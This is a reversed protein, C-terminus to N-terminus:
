IRNPSVREFDGFDYSGSVKAGRELRSLAQTMADVQDDHAANPFAACEEIFDYVWPAIQPHPLFVNGAEIQPSVAFARAEKSGEPNVPILGPIERKLTNIVATGNAKDEVWKTMILPWKATLTKVAKVTKVFDIQDRTQDLLYKDAGHKAWVQGVVFSSGKTDKFAMDWSQAQQNFRIPLPEAYLNCYEGNADKVSVPPLDQGEYCWFRWWFRKLIGGEPSSPRCQYLGNWGYSGLAPGNKIKLLAEYPWREPWLAEDIERGLLDNEEALAPLSVVEWNDPDQTLYRGAPDDEQWRTTMYVIAANPEARTEIDSGLAQWAKERITLSEAEARNKILDDLLLLNFGMGTIFGDLGCALMGGERGEVNWMDVARSDQALEVGPFIHHYVKSNVIGRSLRSKTRALTAGHTIYMIRDDPRKGLWWPMFRVVSTETKSHRPPMFIMLRKIEGRFVAELKDTLYALHRAPQYGKKVTAAFM